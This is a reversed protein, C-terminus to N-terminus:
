FPLDDKSDIGSGSVQDILPAASSQTNASENGPSPQSGASSADIKWARAETYWRSNYERSELSFSINLQAGPNLTKLIQTREGWASFCIKRPYQENITEVIFEQKVWTGNKGTGTQEPHVQLLKATLELAM